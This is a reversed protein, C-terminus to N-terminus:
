FFVITGDGRANRGYRGYQQETLTKIELGLEVECQEGLDVDSHGLCLERGPAAGLVVVGVVQREWGRGGDSLSDGTEM